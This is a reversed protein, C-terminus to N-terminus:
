WGKMFKKSALGKIFLSLTQLFYNFCLIV